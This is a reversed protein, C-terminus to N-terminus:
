GDEDEPPNPIMQPPMIQRLLSRDKLRERIFSGGSQAMAEMFETRNRPRQPPDLGLLAYAEAMSPRLKYGEGKCFPCTKLATISPPQPITGRRECGGCPVWAEGGLVLEIAEENTM